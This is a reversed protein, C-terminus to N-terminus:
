RGGLGEILGAKEKDSTSRVFPCASDVPHSILIDVPHSIYQKIKTITDFRPSYVKQPFDFYVWV